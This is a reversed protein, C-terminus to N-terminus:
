SFNTQGGQECSVICFIAAVLIICLKLKLWHANMILSLWGIVPEFVSDLVFHSVQHVELLLFVNPINYLIGTIGAVSM